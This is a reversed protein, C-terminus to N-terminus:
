TFVGANDLNVTSYDRVFLAGGDATATNSDFTVGVGGILNSHYGIWGGGGRGSSAVNSSINTNDAVVLSTYQSIYFGGGYPATNNYFQGGEEITCNAYSTM